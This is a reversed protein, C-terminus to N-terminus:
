LWHFIYKMKEIFIDDTWHESEINVLVASKLDYLM